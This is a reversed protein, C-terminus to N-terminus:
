RPVSAMCFTSPELGNMREGFRGPVPREKEEANRRPHRQTVAPDAKSDARSSSASSSLATAQQLFEDIEALAPAAQLRQFIERGQQLVPRAESTRGLQVLCRGQGLLAFAQEAVVGFAQWRQAADAYGAVAADLDGHAEALAAKSAVVMHEEEPSRPEAHEAVREFLQRDGIALAIRMSAPDTFETGGITQMIEELLAGAADSQGLAIRAEAVSILGTFTYMPSGTGRPGTELWDLSDVVEAAQGRLTLIRTRTARPFILDNVAVEKDGDIIAAAAALAEDLDGAAFLLLPVYSAAFDAEIGRVQALAIATHCEELAPRPGEFAEMVSALNTQAVVAERGQGAEVALAIAERMEGTGGIDGLATRAYGRFGLARAPRPLGLEEALALARTTHVVCEEPKNRAYFEAMGLETMASILEPGPPLPELLAVAEAPLEAWRPDGVRYLVAGLRGMARAAARVDGAAQFAGIAEELADKAEGFRGAHQAAEGFRALATAREPHGAPTLTLAREFSALATQTDLGLARNGALGLFRLAPAELEATREAEGAARALELASTYHYALVDALDEVREPAKSEVWAAAAVHRNARSARPLQNYAVDRALVHWFAYEAEGAMSSQRLPRVLEKRSLERLTLTVSEPDREGMAAVAGAWFVKGIVAADALLSKAEPELTDLRAAILAQVSEPFPVDAGEKLQWSSGVRELLDRDKLLRVFEEAYLPNGGARELIPQQLDAPIVTTDLLASVLRATEEQSLPVLTIPTANRLRTAYDPYREYLEPRTTGILLLPIGEALDALHELFALLAEDAWHLDEFVLM